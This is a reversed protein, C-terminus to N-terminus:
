EQGNHFFSEESATEESEDYVAESEKLEHGIEAEECAKLEYENEVEKCVKEEAEAESEWGVVPELVEKQVSVASNEAQEGKEARSERYKRLLLRIGLTLLIVFLILLVAPVGYLIIMLPITIGERITNDNQLWARKM